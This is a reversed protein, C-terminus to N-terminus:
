ERQYEDFQYTCASIGCSPHYEVKFDDLQPVEDAQDESGSSPLQQRVLERDESTGMTALQEQSDSQLPMSMPDQVFAENGADAFPVAENFELRPFFSLLSALAQPIPSSLNDMNESASLNIEEVTSTCAMDSPPTCSRNALRLRGLEEELAEDTARNKAQRECAARHKVFGNVKFEGHCFPCTKRKSSVKCNSKQARIAPM